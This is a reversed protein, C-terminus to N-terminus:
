FKKKRFLNKITNDNKEPDPEAPRAKSTDAEEWVIRVRPKGAAPKQGASSDNRFWGYEENLITRLTQREAKIDKKIKNGAAKVDYGVKVREGINEVKLLLSTRGLGDDQIAGFETTNPKPKIIKKSLIESLLINVHYEYDNDFSHKGNISLDAASSKVDMQPLYLFNNRIFFDNELEEFSINELETIEIFRSLARVPEFDILAGDKILFKGEATINKVIPHLLSDMPILVSLSGSVTGALNEAKLFDQGFNHFVSFVRNINIEEFNFSGRGFYAKNVNQMFFGDGSIVGDMSNLKLAKFNMIRPKYSFIGSINEARFTKYHLAGINFNLDLFMDGPLSLARKSGSSTDAKSSDPLFSDVTLRDCGISARATMTVPAGSLWETLNVFTGNLIIHQDNYTFNLDRATVTKSVLLDGTANNLVIKDNKLGIGFSRLKLDATTNFTFFDAFTYKEKEPIIGDMKLDLDISGETRSISKLGFFQKLESPILRGKLQLVGKLEKFDSLKLSGTYASSGLTGKFDSFTLSSTEPVMGSGNTFFGKFSINKIALASNAHIVDGKDVSFIMEIGPNSTRTLPGKIRSEVNLVGAPNYATLKGAINEPLYSKIGSIDINEGTVVLDLIDDSSVSGILEYKSDDFILISKDFRVEEPSSKLSVDVETDISKAVIFNYLKFLDIRLNGKATFDIDDGSIKSKLRGNEITGGIILETARNDYIARIDEVSVGNLNITLVEGTESSDTSTINYNVLGSTDTLLKLYGEKIGIKEIYYIGKIIDTISFELSVSEASLLTDTGTGSFCTRDFGPSSHVLINKLNLTAKPFRNLFSLNVSGIEFKTSIDKNLSKLIIGAVKDRMLFSAIFMAVTVTIILIAGTKLIKFPLKM